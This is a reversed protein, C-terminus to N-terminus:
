HLWYEQHLYGLPLRLPRRTSKLHHSQGQLLVGSLHLYGLLACVRLTASLKKHTATSCIKCLGHQVDM